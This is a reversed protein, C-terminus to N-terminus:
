RGGHKPFKGPPVHLALLQGGEVLEEEKPYHAQVDALFWGEGLIQSVDVIGSSEEDLTLPRAAAPSFRAPDHEAILTLSDSPPDYQWVRAV